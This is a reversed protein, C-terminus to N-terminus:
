PVRSRSLRSPWPPWPVSRRRRFGPSWRRSGRGIPWSATATRAAIRARLQTVPRATGIRAAIATPMATTTIAPAFLPVPPVAGDDSAAPKGGALDAAASKVPVAASAPRPILAGSPWTAVNLPVVTATPACVPVLIERARKKKETSLPRVQCSPVAPPSGAGPWAAANTVPPARPQTATPGADTQVLGFPRPQSRSGARGWSAPSWIVVSILVPDPNRAAPDLMGPPSAAFALGTAQSDAFPVVQCRRPTVWSPRAAPVPRTSPMVAAAAFPLEITSAPVTAPAVVRDPVHRDVSPPVVQVATVTGAPPAAAVILPTAGSLAPKTATRGACTAPDAPAATYVEGSPAAHCLAADSLVASPAGSVIPSTLPPGPPATTVPCACPNRM